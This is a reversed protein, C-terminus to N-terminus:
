YLHLCFLSVHSLFKLGDYSCWQNPTECASFYGLFLKLLLHEFVLDEGLRSKKGIEANGPVMERSLKSRDAM